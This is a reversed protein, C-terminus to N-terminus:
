GDKKEEMEMKLIKKQIIDIVEQIQDQTMEEFGDVDYKKLWKAVQDDPVNLNEIFSEIKKIQPKTALVNPNSESDLADAGYIEAFKDYSLPMTEGQPLSEIRSKKILFNKYGPLIEIALDLDYELKPYGEFTNGDQYIENGKRAWKAKSHAILLVNMDCKNIWKILQRSPKNAMKRDKGFSDGVKEEADAAENIYLHSFSDIILTKRDHKVTSLNKIENIVEGFDNAGQEKGFYLGNVKKLKEQYQSRVAGGESDILYPSPWQLSFMTKGCGPEGYVLMKVKSPKVDHPKVAKLAM